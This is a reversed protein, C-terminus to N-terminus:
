ISFTAFTQVRSFGDNASRHLVGLVAGSRKEM